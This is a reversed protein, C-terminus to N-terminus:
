AAKKEESVVFGPIERVGSRVVEGAMAIVLERFRAPARTYAWDLAVGEDTLTAVWMTRLGTGTTAAKEAKRAFKEAAKAADAQQEAQERAELNGSSAQMAEQALRLEEAAEKRAKEAIAAAVRQQEVRWATLLQQLATRAMPVKGRGAKTDGILPHFRAQIANKAEDLPKVETVRLAEAEKGAAQLGDFLTTIAEAMEPSSIPEGDAWNKAEDYLDSIRASIEEFATDVKPGGNDGHTTPEGQVQPALEPTAPGPLPRGESRALAREYASAATM